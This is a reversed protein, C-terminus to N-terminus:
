HSNSGWIQLITFGLNVGFAPDRGGTSVVGPDGCFRQERAVPGREGRISPHGTGQQDEQQEEGEAARAGARRVAGPWRGDEVEARYM